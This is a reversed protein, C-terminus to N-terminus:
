FMEQVQYADDQFADDQFAGYPDSFPVASLRDAWKPEGYPPLAGMALYKANAKADAPGPRGTMARALRSSAAGRNPQPMQGRM